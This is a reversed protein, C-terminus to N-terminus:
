NTPQVQVPEVSYEYGVLLAALNNNVLSLDTVLRQYELTLTLETISASIVDGFQATNNQYGREVAETRAVSQPLLITQYREIRETLNIRDNILANAKANMQALLVDRGSRVAGVQYQAASLNRDQRNGTFLPIDMTVYASLLDSAPEGRMNDAQRYAYMVEVGFQPTYAQEALEVQTENAAITVDAMKVMPHQTLANFHSTSNLGNALYSDLQSWPLQNSAEFQNQKSLWQEGLWESLQSRLRQQMQRNTHLKEDYQSVNLQANLLDQAESKGIGYNTQVFKEQEILLKQTSELIRQALQLYGLELWIQTINSAIERERNEGQLVMGDAQQNAQKEKLTTTSGREFQQMLGVSINTMPDDDFKFSDVPLGGVGMKLKPDMLTASAVGMERMANSQAQYQQRGQDQHLAVNILEYLAQASQTPTMTPNVETSHALVATPLMVVSVILGGTM